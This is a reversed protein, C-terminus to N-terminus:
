AIVLDRPEIVFGEIGAEVTRDSGFILRKVACYMYQTQFPLASFKSSVNILVFNSFVPLVM